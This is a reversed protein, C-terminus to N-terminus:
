GLAGFAGPSKPAKGRRGCAASSLKEWIEINDGSELSDCGMGAGGWM